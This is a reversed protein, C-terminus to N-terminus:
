IDKDFFSTIASVSKSVDSEAVHTYIKRMTQYDAWGGIQMAVKESVGLHYALSCFSHRLGHTGILPLSNEACIRNVQSWITNPNCTVVFEGTRTAVTLLSKLRPIM